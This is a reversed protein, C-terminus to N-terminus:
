FGLCKKVMYYLVQVGQYNFFKSGPTLSGSGTPQSPDSLGVSRVPEKEQEQNDVLIKM